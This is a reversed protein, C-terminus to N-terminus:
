SSESTNHLMAKLIPILVAGGIPTKIINKINPPQAHMVIAISQTMSPLALM